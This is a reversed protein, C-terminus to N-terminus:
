IHLGQDSAVNQDLDVSNTWAQRDLFNSYIPRFSTFSLWKAHQIFIEASSM